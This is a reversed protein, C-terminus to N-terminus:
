KLAINSASRSARSRSEGPARVSGCVALWCTASVFWCTPREEFTVNQLTDHRSGSDMVVWLKAHSSFLLAVFLNVHHKQNCSNSDLVCGSIGPGAPNSCAANRSPARGDSKDCSGGSSRRLFALLKCCRLLCSVANADAAHDSAHAAIPRSGVGPSQGPPCRNRVALATLAALSSRTLLISSTTCSMHGDAAPSV